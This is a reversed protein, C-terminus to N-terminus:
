TKHQKCTNYAVAILATSLQIQYLSHFQWPMYLMNQGSSKSNTDLITTTYSIKYSEIHRVVQWAKHTVTTIHNPSSRKVGNLVVTITHKVTNQGSSKSDTDLITTTYSIQYSEIPRVM